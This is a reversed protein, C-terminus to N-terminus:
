SIETFIERPLFFILNIFNIIVISVKNTNKFTCHYIESGIPLKCISSSMPNNFLFLLCFCFCFCFCFLVFALFFFFM